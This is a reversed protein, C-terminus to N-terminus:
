RCTVHMSFKGCAPHTFDFHTFQYKFSVLELWHQCIYYIFWLRKLTKHNTDCNETKMSWMAVIAAVQSRDIRYLPTHSCRANFHAASVQRVSHSRDCGGIDRDDLTHQLACTYHTCPQLPMYTCFCFGVCRLRESHLKWRYQHPSHKITETYIGM